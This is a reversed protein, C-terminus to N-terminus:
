KLIGVSLERWFVDAEHRRYAPFHERLHRRGLAVLTAEAVAETNMGHVDRVHIRLDTRRQEPTSAV